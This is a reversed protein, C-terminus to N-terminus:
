GGYPIGGSFYPCVRGTRSRYIRELVKNVHNGIWWRCNTNESFVYNPDGIRRRYRDRFKRELIPRLHGVTAERDHHYGLWRDRM